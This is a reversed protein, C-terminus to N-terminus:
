KPSPGATITWNDVRGTTSCYAVTGAYLPVEIGVLTHHDFDTLEPSHRRSARLRALRLSEWVQLRLPSCLSRVAPLLGVYLVWRVGRRVLNALPFGPQM